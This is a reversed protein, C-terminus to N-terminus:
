CVQTNEEQGEQEEGRVKQHNVQNDPKCKTTISEKASRDVQHHEEQHELGQIHQNEEQDKQANESEVGLLHGKAVAFVM